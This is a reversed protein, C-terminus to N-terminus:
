PRDVRGGRCGCGCVARRAIGERARVPVHDGADANACRIAGPEVSALDPQHLAQQQGCVGGRAVACLSEPGDRAHGASVPLAATPGLRQQGQAPQRALWTRANGLRKLRGLISMKARHFRRVVASLKQLQIVDLCAELESMRYNTGNFLEGAYRPAAFRDPRWLGGCEALQSAREFLRQHDTLIMGGEGAGIIKYASISFCGIDGITGVWQRRYKAGPSQACDEVVKLGHRRAIRMIPAMDAVGGMVHVAAVAVTRPTILSQIRRPDIHLSEDVDCFVPVGHAAVVAAATAYFGIAPVIVETGPGVGVAVFASHLAGTGSSLGRAFKVGFRERATAEFTEGATERPGYYRALSWGSRLDGDSVASRIRAVADPKFGFRRALALFEKVGLKPKAQAGVRVVAKPGGHIALKEM